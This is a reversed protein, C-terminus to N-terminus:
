KKLKDLAVQQEPTAEKQFKEKWEHYPMGYIIERAEDYNIEKGLSKSEKMYWKSICNRCFDALIMLEINQVNPNEKLHELFKKFTAAEIQTKINDVNSM